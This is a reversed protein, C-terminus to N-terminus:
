GVATNYNGLLSCSNLRSDYCRLVVEAVQLKLRKFLFNLGPVLDGGPNIFSNLRM